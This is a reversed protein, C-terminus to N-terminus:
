KKTHKAFAKLRGWFTNSIKQNAVEGDNLPTGKQAKKTEQSLRPPTKARSKPRSSPYSPASPAKENPLGFATAKFAYNLYHHKASNTRYFTGKPTVCKQVVVIKTNAAYNNVIKGNNLDIMITNRTTFCNLPKPLDKWVYKM